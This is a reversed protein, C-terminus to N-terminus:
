RPILELIGCAIVAEDEDVKAWHTGSEIGRAEADVAQMPHAKLAQELACVAAPPGGRAPLRIAGTASSRRELADTSRHQSTLEM